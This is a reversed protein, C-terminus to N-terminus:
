LHPGGHKALIKTLKKISIPGQRTTWAPRSSRLDLSAGVEAEWLAPTIPTFWWMQSLAHLKLNCKVDITLCTIGIQM